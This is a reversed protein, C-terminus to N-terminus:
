GRVALFRMEILETIFDWDVVQNNIMLSEKPMLEKPARFFDLVEYLLNTINMIRYDKKTILFIHEEDYKKLHVSKDLQLTVKESSDPSLRELNLPKEESINELKFFKDIYFWGEWQEPHKKLFSELEQYLKETVINIFDTRNKTKLLLKTHIPKVLIRNSLDKNRKAIAAVIPAKSLYALYAIGQRAYIHHNLFDMKHLNKNEDVEKNASGTNGDIYFVVSIGNKLRNMLEFMLRPNEAPLIELEDDSNSRLRKFVNKVDDGQTKLFHEQTVLAFNVNRKSLLELFLRYSGTHYTIFITSQSFSREILHHRDNIKAQNLVEFFYQDLGSLSRHFQIDRVLKNDENDNLDPLYTLLNASVTMFVGLLGIGLKDFSTGYVQKRYHEVNKLYAINEM